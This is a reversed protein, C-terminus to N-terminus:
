LEHSLSIVLTFETIYDCPDKFSPLLFSLFWLSLGSMCSLPLTVVSANALLTLLCWAALKSSPFFTLKSDLWPACAAELLYFLCPFM